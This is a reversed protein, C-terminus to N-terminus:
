SLLVSATDRDLIQFPRIEWLRTKPNAIACRPDHLHIGSEDVSGVSVFKITDIASTFDGTLCMIKMWLTDRDVLDFFVGLEERIEYRPQYTINKILGIAMAENKVSKLKESAYHDDFSYRGSFHSFAAKFLKQDFEIWERYEFSKIPTGNAYFIFSLTSESQKKTKYNLDITAKNCNSRGM